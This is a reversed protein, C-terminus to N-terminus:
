GDTGPENVNVRKTILAKVTAIDGSKAATVLANDTAAQGQVVLLVTVLPLLSLLWKLSRATRM